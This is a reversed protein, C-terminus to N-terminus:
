EGFLKKSLEILVTKCLHEDSNHDYICPKKLKARPCGPCIFRRAFNKVMIEAMSNENM